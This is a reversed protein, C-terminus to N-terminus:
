LYMDVRNRAAALRVADLAELATQSSIDTNGKGVVGKRYQFNSLSRL